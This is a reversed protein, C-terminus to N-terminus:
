SPIECLIIINYTVTQHCNFLQNRVTATSHIEVLLITTSPRNKETYLIASDM